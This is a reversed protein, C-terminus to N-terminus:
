NNVKLSRINLTESFIFLLFNIELHESLGIGAMGLVILKSWIQTINRLKLLRQELKEINLNFLGVLGTLDMSLSVKARCPFCEFM